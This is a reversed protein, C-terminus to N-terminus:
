REANNTLGRALAIREDPSYWELAHELVSEVAADAEEQTTAQCARLVDEEADASDVLFASVWDWTIERTATDDASEVDVAAVLRRYPGAHDRILELARISAEVTAEYESLEQEDGGVTPIPLTAPRIPLAPAKLEEAFLPVFVRM